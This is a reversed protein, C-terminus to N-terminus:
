VRMTKLHEGTYGLTWITVFYHGCQRKAFAFRFAEPFRKFRKVEPVGGDKLWYVKYKM